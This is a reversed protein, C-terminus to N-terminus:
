IIPTNIATTEVASTIGNTASTIVSSFSDIFQKSPEGAFKLYIVTAILFFTLYMIDKGYKDLIKGFKTENSWEKTNSVILDAFFIRQEKTLGKLTNKEYKVFSYKINDPTRVIYLNKGKGDLYTTNKKDLDDDTLRLTIKKGIIKLQNDKLIKCYRVKIQTNGGKEEIIIIKSYKKPFIILKYFMFGILGLNTILSSILYEIM